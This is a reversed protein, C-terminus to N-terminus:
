KFSHSLGEVPHSSVTSIGVPALRHRDLFRIQRPDTVSWENGDGGLENAVAVASGSPSLVVPLYGDEALRRACAEGSGRRAATLVAVPEDTM